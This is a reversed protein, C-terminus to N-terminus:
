QSHVPTSPENIQDQRVGMMAENTGNMSRTVYIHAYSAVPRAFELTQVVDGDTSIDLNAVLLKVGDEEECWLEPKQSADLNWGVFLAESSDPDAVLRGSSVCDDCESTMAFTQAGQPLM